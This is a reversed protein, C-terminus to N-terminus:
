CAELEFHVAIGSVQSLGTSIVTSVTIGAQFYEPPLQDQGLVTMASLSGAGGSANGALPVTILPLLGSGRAVPTTNSLDQDWIALSLAAGGSTVATTNSVILKRIVYYKNAPAPWPARTIMTGASGSFNQGHKVVPM